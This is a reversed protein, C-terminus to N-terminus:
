KNFGENKESIGLSGQDYLVNKDKCKSEKQLKNWKQRDWCRDVSNENTTHYPNTVM